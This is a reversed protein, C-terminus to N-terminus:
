PVESADPTETGVPLTLTFVAGGQTRNRCSLTGGLDRAFRRSTSLGLGTGGPRWTAFPEFVQNTRDQAVGPGSDAVEIHVEAGFVATTVRVSGGDPQVQIANTILNVLVHRLTSRALKLPQGTASCDAELRVAHADAEARLLGFVEQVADELVCSEPLEATKRAVRLYREVYENIVAIDASQDALVEAAVAAEVAGHKRFLRLLRQTAISLANLPTRVEHAFTAAMEGIAAMRDQVALERKGALLRAHAQELDATRAAVKEELEENLRRVRANARAIDRLRVLGDRRLLWAIFFLLGIMTVLLAAGVALVPRTAALSADAPAVVGVLMHGNGAPAIATAVVHRVGHFELTRAGDTTPLILKDADTHCHACRKNTHPSSAAVCPSSGAWSLVSGEASLVFAQSWADPMLERLTRDGIATWDGVLAVNTNRENGEGTHQASAVIMDGKRGPVRALCIGQGAPCVRHASLVAALAAADLAGEPVVATSDPGSIVGAIIGHDSLLRVTHHVLLRAKPDTPEVTARAHSLLSLFKQMEEFVEGLRDAAGTVRGQQTQGYHAVSVAEFRRFVGAAALLLLALLLAFAALM